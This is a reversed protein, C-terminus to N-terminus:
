FFNPFNGSIQESLNFTHLGSSLPKISESALKMNQINVLHKTDSDLALCPSVPRSVAEFVILSFPPM